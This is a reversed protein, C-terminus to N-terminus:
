LPALLLPVSQLPQLVGGMVAADGGASNGIAALPLGLRVNLNNGTQSLMAFFSGANVTDSPTVARRMPM